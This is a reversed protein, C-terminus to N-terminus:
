LGLGLVIIYLGLGLVIIYLSVGQLGGGVGERRGKGAGFGM